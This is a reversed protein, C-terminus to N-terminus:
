GGPPEVTLALAALVAGVGITVLLIRRLVILLRSLATTPRLFERAVRRRGARGLEDAAQRVARHGLWPLFALLLFWAPHHFLGLHVPAFATLIGLVARLYVRGPVDAAVPPPRGPSRTAASDPDRPM